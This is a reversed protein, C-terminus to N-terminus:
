CAKEGKKQEQILENYKQRAVGLNLDKEQVSSLSGKRAAINLLKSQGESGIFSFYRNGIETSATDTTDLSKGFNRLVTLSPNSGLVAKIIDPNSTNKLLSIKEADSLNEVLNKIQSPNSKAQEEINAIKEQATYTQSASVSEQKLEAEALSIKASEYNSSTITYKVENKVSDDYYNYQSAAAKIAGENGSHVTYKVAELQNNKDLSIINKAAYEKVEQFRSDYTIKYIDTQNEKAFKSYQDIILKNVSKQGEESIEASTYNKAVEVQNESAMESTHGAAIEIAPENKSDAVLKSAGVQVSKDYEQINDAVIRTSIDRQTETGKTIVTKAAGLQYEANIRSIVRTLRAREEPTKCRSEYLNFQQLQSIEGKKEKYLWIFYKAAMEDKEEESAKTYAKPYFRKLTDDMSAGDKPAKASANVQTPKAPAIKKDPFLTVDKLDTSKAPVSSSGVPVTTYDDAKQVPTFGQGKTPEQDKRYYSSYDIPYNSSM